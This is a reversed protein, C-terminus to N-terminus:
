RAPLATPIDLVARARRSCVIFTIVVAVLAFTAIVVEDM